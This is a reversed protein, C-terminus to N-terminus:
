YFTIHSRYGLQPREVVRRRSVDIGIGLWRWHDIVIIAITFL